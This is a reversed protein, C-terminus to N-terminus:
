RHSGTPVPERRERPFSAIRDHEGLSGNPMFVVNGGAELVKEIVADIVDDIEDMVDIEPSILPFEPLRALHGRLHYDKEVLLTAEAGRIVWRAVAELGVTIQGRAAHFELARITDDVVGSMAEKVVPWVIRGLDRPSTHRHDGEVYGIIASAHETISAFTAVMRPEGILIVRLPDQAHHHGFSEDVTRVLERLEEDSSDSTQKAGVVPFGQNELEILSDRFAEFLLTTEAALSLV